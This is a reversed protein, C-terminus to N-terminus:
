LEELATPSPSSPPGEWTICTHSVWWSLAHFSLIIDLQLLLLFLINFILPTFLEFIMWTNLPFDDCFLSPFLSFLSPFPSLLFAYVYILYPYSSSIPYVYSFIPVFSSSLPPLGWSAFLSLEKFVLHLILTAFAVFLLLFYSSAPLPTQLSTLPLNPPGLYLHHIPLPSGHLLFQNSSLEKLYEIELEKSHHSSEKWCSPSEV